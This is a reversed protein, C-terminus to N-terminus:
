EATKIQPPYTECYVIAHQLAEYAQKYGESETGKFKACEDELAQVNNLANTYNANLEVLLATLRTDDATATNLAAQAATRDAEAKTIIATAADVDAQNTSNTTRDINLASLASSEAQLATTIATGADTVAQSLGPLAGDLNVRITDNEPIWDDRITLLEAEYDAVLEIALDLRHRLAVERYYEEREWEQQAM